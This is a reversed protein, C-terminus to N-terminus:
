KPTVDLRKGNLDYIPRGNAAARIEGRVKSGDGDRDHWALSQMATLHYAARGHASPGGVMAHRDFTM